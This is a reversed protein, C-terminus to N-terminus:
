TRHIIPPICGADPPTPVVRGRQAYDSLAEADAHGMPAFPSIRVNKCSSGEVSRLDPDTDIGLARSFAAFHSARHFLETPSNAFTLSVTSGPKGRLTIVAHNQAIRDPEGPRSARGRTSVGLIVESEQIPYSVVIESSYSRLQTETTGKRLFYKRERECLTLPVEGSATGRTLRVRAKIREPVTPPVDVPHPPPPVPALVDAMDIFQDLGKWTGQNTPFAFSAHDDPQDFEGHASRVWVARDHLGWMGYAEGGIRVIQPARLPLGNEGSHSSLDYEEPWKLADHSLSLLMVGAHPELLRVKEHDVLSVLMEKKGDFIEVLFLGTFRMQLTFGKAPATSKSDVPTDTLPADSCGGAMMAAGLAMGGGLVQRRNIAM